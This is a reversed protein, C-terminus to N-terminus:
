MEEWTAVGVLMGSSDIELIGGGWWWGGEEGGVSVWRGERWFGGSGLVSTWPRRYVGGWTRSGRRICRVILM